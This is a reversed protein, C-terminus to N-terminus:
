DAATKIFTDHCFAFFGNITFNVTNHRHHYFAASIDWGAIVAYGFFNRKFIVHVVAFTHEFSFVLVQPNGWTSLPQFRVAKAELNIDVYVLRKYNGTIDIIKQEGNALTVTLRFDKVMTKPVHCALTNLYYTAYMPRKYIAGEYQTDRNLDSDFVFRARRVYMPQKFSYEAYGGQKFCFSNANDGIPRDHGNRLVEASDGSTLLDADKTLNSVQRTLGPLWCDDEMLIQQLENIHNEYVGRPTTNHHTAMFAAAGAAQGLIGCTRMVRTASLAAHTVSINRGAFFLNEINKSYLCRYPIGFPSPAPHYVTPPEKTRFAEPHHDDM